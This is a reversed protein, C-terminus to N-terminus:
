LIMEDVFLSLKEEEKAMQIVKSEKKESHSPSGVCHQFFQHSYGNKDQESILPFAKM